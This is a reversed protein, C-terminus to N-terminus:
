GEPNELLEQLGSKLAVPVRALWTEDRLGVEILDRLQGRDKDRFSTLKM